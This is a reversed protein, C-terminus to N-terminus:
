LVKVKGTDMYIWNLVNLRTLFFVSKEVKGTTKSFCLILEILESTELKGKKIKKYTNYQNITDKGPSATPIGRNRM